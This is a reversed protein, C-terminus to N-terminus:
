FISLINDECRHVRMTDQPGNHVHHQERVVIRLGGGGELMGSQVDTKARLALLQM